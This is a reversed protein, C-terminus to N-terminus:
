GIHSAFAKVGFGGAAWLRGGSGDWALQATRASDAGEDDNGDVEISGVIEASASRPDVRVLWSRNRTEDYLAAFGLSSSHDEAACLATVGQTGSVRRFNRGGDASVFLGIDPRAIFVAEGSCALLPREASRAVLAVLDSPLAIEGFSGGGDDSRLLTGDSSLALTPPGHPSLAVIRRESCVRFSGGDDDSRLLRGSPTRVLLTHPFAPGPQSLDFADRVHSGAEAERVRRLEEAASALRGRRFLKGSTTSCVAYEWATGVLVVSTIRSSGADLRLPSSEKPGFWLLDTSAAVVIEDRAAIATCAELKPGQGLAQFLPKALPPRQEDGLAALEPLAATERLGDNDDGGELPPLEFSFDEAGAVGEADDNKDGEPTDFTDQEGEDLGNADDDDRPEAPLLLLDTADGVDLDGDDAVDSAVDVFGLEPDLDKPEASDDGEDGLDPLSDLLNGIVEDSLEDLDPDKDESRPTEPAPSAVSSM